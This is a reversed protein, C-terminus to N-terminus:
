VSLNQKISPILPVFQHPNSDDLGYLLLGISDFFSQPALKLILDILEEKTRNNLYKTVKKKQTANLMNELGKDMMIM